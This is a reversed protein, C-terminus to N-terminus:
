KPITITGIWMAFLNYRNGRYDEWIKRQFLYLAPLWGLAMGSTNRKNKIDNKIQTEPNEWKAKHLSCRWTELMTQGLYNFFHSNIQFNDWVLDFNPILKVLALHEIDDLCGLFFGGVISIAM